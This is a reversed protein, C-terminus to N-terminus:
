DRRGERRRSGPSIAKRFRNSNSVATSDHALLLSHISNRLETFSKFLQSNLVRQFDQAISGFTRPKFRCEIRSDAGKQSRALSLIIPGYELLPIKNYKKTVKFASGNRKKLSQALASQREVRFDSRAPIIIHM